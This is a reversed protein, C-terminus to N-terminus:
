GAQDRRAYAEDVRSMGKPPLIGGIIWLLPIAFGIVFLIWHGNRITKVGLFVLLFVYVIGLGVYLLLLEPPPTLRGCRSTRAPMNPDSQSGELETAHRTRSTAQLATAVQVVVDVPHELATAEELM